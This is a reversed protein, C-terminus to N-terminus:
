WLPAKFRSHFTRGKLLLKAAIGSSAVAVAISEEDLLRIAALIANLLYSKGTGGPADVFFASPRKAKVCEVVDDFVM